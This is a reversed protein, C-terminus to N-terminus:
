FPIESSDDVQPVNRGNPRSAQARTSGRENGQGTAQQTPKHPASPASDTDNSVKGSSPPFMAENVTWKAMYKKEGTEKDEWSETKMQLELVIGSGKTFYQNVFEGRKEWAVCRLYETYAYEGYGLNVAVKFECVAKGQPTYRLEPEATLNGTAFTKLMGM